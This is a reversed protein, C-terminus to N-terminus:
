ALVLGSVRTVADILDPRLDPPLESLGRGLTALTEDILRESGPTWLLAVEANGFAREDIRAKLATRVQAAVAPLLTRGSGLAIRHLAPLDRRSLPVFVPPRELLHNAIMTGLLDSLQVERLGPVTKELLAPLTDRRLGLGTTLFKSLSSLESVLAAAAGLDRLSMFPRLTPAVALGLPQGGAQTADLFGSYLPRLLLLGRLPEGLRPPLLSIPDEKPTLSTLAGDPSLNSEILLLALKRLQVTLSYGLRFLYLLSVERLQQSAQEVNVVVQPAQGSQGPSGQPLLRFELGLSLYGATRRLVQRAGEADGLEVRDASMARNALLLLHQFITAQESAPLHAAARTFTCDTEDLGPLRRPALSKDDPSLAPTPASRLESPPPPAAPDILLYVKLAEYHEIYGLDAMRGSRFRYAQEETETGVDWHASQILSRALELDGRYLGELFRQLLPGRDADGDPDPLIDIQYFRDPTSFFFGEPQEPPPPEEEGLEYIRLRLGLFSTLLEADLRRMHAVLKQPGLNCLAELWPFFREPSVRDREWADMDLFAQVQETSVLGLLDTADDLGLSKIFLFLPQAPTARVLKVADPREMLRDLVQRPRSGGSLWEIAAPAPAPAPAHIPAPPSPVVSLTPRSPPDHDAGNGSSKKRAPRGPPRSSKSAM